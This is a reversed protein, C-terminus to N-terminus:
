NLARFRAKLQGFACEIAMRAKCLTLGYYQEQQTAGGKAYEKMLYPMLPDAPNGLIFVPIPNEKGSNAKKLLSGEWEKFM